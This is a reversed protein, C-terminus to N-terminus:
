KTYITKSILINFNDLLISQKTMEDIEADELNALMARFSCWPYDSGFLIRKKDIMSVAYELVHPTTIGSTDFLVNETDAADRIARRVITTDTGGMHAMVLKIKGYQKAAELAHLYSTNSSRDADKYRGTHIILVAEQSDLFELVHRYIPATIPLLEYAGHFKVGSIKSGLNSRLVELDNEICKKQLWYIAYIGKHRNKEAFAIVRKNTESINTEFPFVLMKDIRHVQKFRLLDIELVPHLLLPTYGLHVHSDNITLQRIQEEM